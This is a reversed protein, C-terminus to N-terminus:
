GVLRGVAGCLERLRRLQDAEPGGAPLEDALRTLGDYLAQLAFGQVKRSLARRRTLWASMGAMTAAVGGAAGFLLGAVFSHPGTM